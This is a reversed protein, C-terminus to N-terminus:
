PCPTLISLYWPAPNACSGCVLAVIWTSGADIGTFPEGAANPALSTLALNTDSPVDGRWLDEAILDLDLFQAELEAPTLSYRAVLVEDISTTVFENGLANVTIDAWDITIDATGAPVRLPELSALDVSYELGTSDTDVVVETNTSMPDLKFAHIMRTGQGLVEGTATMVTYTHSAPDFGDGIGDECEPHANPDPNPAQVFPLIECPTLPTGISTFEFLTASTTANETYVTAIVALDRQELADDNLKVRLDEETLKWLMLNVTDIDALPDVPHGLFDTTVASWDFSLESDPMVLTPPFSLTSSFAYNNVPNASVVVNGMAPAACTDGPGGGTSGMTAGGTGTTGSTSSSSGGTGTAGNGDGTGGGCACCFLVLATSVRGLEDRM